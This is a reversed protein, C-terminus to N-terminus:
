NDGRTTCVIDCASPLVVELLTLTLGSASGYVMCRGYWCVGYMSCVLRQELLTLRRQARGEARDHALADEGEDKFTGGLQTPVGHLLQVRRPATSAHDKARPAGDLCQLELQELLHVHEAVRPTLLVRAHLHARLHLKPAQHLSPCAVGLGLGLGLGLGVGVGVGVGLGVGLGLWTSRLPRTSTIRTYREDHKIM